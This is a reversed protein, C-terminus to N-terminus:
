VFNDLVLFIIGKFPTLGVESELMLADRAGIGLKCYLINKFDNYIIIVLMSM